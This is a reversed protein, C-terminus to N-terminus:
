RRRDSCRRRAKGRVAPGPTPDGDKDLLGAIVKGKVGDVPVSRWEGRGGQKIGLRVVTVTQDEAWAGPHVLSDEAAGVARPQKDRKVLVSDAQKHCSRCLKAEGALSDSLPAGDADSLIGVPSM